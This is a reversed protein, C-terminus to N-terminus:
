MHLYHYDKRLFLVTECKLIICNKIFKFNISRESFHIKKNYELMSWMRHIRYRLLFFISYMLGCIVGDDKTYDHSEVFQVRKTRLLIPLYLESYIIIFGTVHIHVFYEYFSFCCVSYYKNDSQPITKSFCSVAISILIGLKPDYTFLTCDEKCTTKSTHLSHGSLKTPFYM